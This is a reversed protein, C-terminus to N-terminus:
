GEARAPEGLRDHAADALYGTMQAVAPVRRGRPWTAYLRRILDSDRVPRVAIDPRPELMTLESLLGVSLGAAIMARGVTVDQVEHVRPEIGAESWLRDLM